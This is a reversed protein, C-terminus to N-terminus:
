ATRSSAGARRLRGPGCFAAQVRQLARARPARSTSGQLSAARAASGAPERGRDDDAASRASRRAARAARAAPRRRCAPRSPWPAEVDDARAQAARPMRSARRSTNPTSRSRPAPGGAGCRRGAAPRRRTGRCSAAPALEAGRQAAGAGVHAAGAPLVEALRRELRQGVARQERGHGRAARELREGEGALQRGLQHGGISASRSASRAAPRTRAARALADVGVALAGGGQELGEAGSAISRVIAASTTGASSAPAAAANLM